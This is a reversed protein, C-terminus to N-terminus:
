LVRVWLAKLYETEPCDGAVPHDAGAGSRHLIQLQRGEPTASCVIKSFEEASLLGSCSCTVFLGGPAVLQMALRNFDFYKRRGTEIEDRGDILKPPDLVVTEYQKEGRLMDRMYAFADAHVCRVKVRNRQANRRAVDVAHEDLDVATVEEAVGRIAASIAFGGTYSCLDILRGPRSWEALRRRNNRQDCFFGTKHGGTLDVEFEVGNERVHVRRPPSESQLLEGEFGEQSATNPGPRVIWHPVNMQRSLQQLLATSRQFMGLTFVEAVLVDGYRDVVVGPLRDGEAHIVRYADTHADLQLQKQRLDIAQQLRSNWWNADLLEDRRSLIRAAIEARPNFYGIGLSQGDGTVLRVLDGHRADAPYAGLRKKFLHAHWSPSRIVLEPLPPGDPQELPRPALHERALLSRTQPRRIFAIRQERRPTPM